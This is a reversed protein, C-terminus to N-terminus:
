LTKLFGELRNAILVHGADNPHLGDPMYRVRNEEIEPQMGSVAYLDLLPVSYYEAVERIIEVYKKLPAKDGARRSGDGYPSSEYGRHTPTMVVITADPYKRILGAFLVHLAGYFTLDTRDSMSGLPADGHGYDNTGGFVVVVDADDDMLQSRYCFDWDKPEGPNPSIQRAIRSGGVGYNRAAALSCRDKLVDFFHKDDASLGSGQTISDGLFNIKKGKLEM